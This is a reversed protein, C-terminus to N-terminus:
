ASQGNERPSGEPYIQPIQTIQPDIFIQQYEAEDATTTVDGTTSSGRPWDGYVGAQNQRYSVVIAHRRSSWAGRPTQKERLDELSIAPHQFTRERAPQEFLDLHL